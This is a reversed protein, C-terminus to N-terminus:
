SSVPRNRPDLCEEIAVQAAAKLLIALESETLRVHRGHGRAEFLRRAIMDGIAKAKATYVASM